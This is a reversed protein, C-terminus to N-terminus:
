RPPLQRMASAGPRHRQTVTYRFGTLLPTCRTERSRSTPDRPIRCIFSVEDTLTLSPFVNVQEGLFAMDLVNWIQQSYLNFGREKITAAEELAFGSAFVVFLGEATGFSEISRTNQLIIFLVALVLVTGTDVVKRIRPIRLVYHDFIGRQGIIYPEIAGAKYNDSILSRHSSPRYLLQGNHLDNVFKQVAPSRVFRLARSELAIEIASSGMDQGDEILDDVDHQTPRSDQEFTFRTAGSFPNWVNTLVTALELTHTDYLSLIKTALVECLAARTHNVGQFALDDEAAELFASRCLLLAYPLAPHQSKAFLTTLPRVVAYDAPTQCLHEYTM